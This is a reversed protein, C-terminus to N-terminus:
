NYEDLRKNGVLWNNVPRLVDETGELIQSIEYIWYSAAM